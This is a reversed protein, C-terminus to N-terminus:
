GRVWRHNIFLIFTGAKQSWNANSVYGEIEFRVSATAATGAPGGAPGGAANRSDLAAAEATRTDCIKGPVGGAEPAAPYKIQLPLLEQAVKRGYITRINKM